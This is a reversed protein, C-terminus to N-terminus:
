KKSNIYADIKTKLLKFYETNEIRKKIEKKDSQTLSTYLITEQDDFTNIRQITQVNYNLTIYFNFLEENKENNKKLILRVNGDKSTKVTNDIISVTGAYYEKENSTIKFEYLISDEQNFKEIVMQMDKHSISVKENNTKDKHISLVTEEKEKVTFELKNKYNLYSLTNENNIDLSIGVIENTLGKAYIHLTSSKLNVKEISSYLSDLYEEYTKKTDKFYSEFNKKLSTNKKLTEITNKFLSTIYQKEMILYVDKVEIENNDLEITTKEEKLDSEKINQFITKVLQNRLNKVIKEEDETNNYLMDLNEIPQEIYKGVVEMIKYTIKNDSANGRVNLINGGLYTSRFAHSFEKNEYDMELTKSVNVNKLVDLLEKEQKSIKKTDYTADFSLLFSTRFPSTTTFNTFENNRVEYFANEIDSSVEVIGKRLVNKKSKVYTYGAILAMIIVILTVITTVFKKTNFPKKSYELKVNKYSLIEPEPEEKKPKEFTVNGMPAYLEDPIDLNEETNKLDNENM